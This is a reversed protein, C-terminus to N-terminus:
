TGIVEFMGKGKRDGRETNTRGEAVPIRLRPRTESTPDLGRKLVPGEGDPFPITTGHRGM